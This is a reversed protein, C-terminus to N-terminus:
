PRAGRIGRAAVRGLLTHRRNSGRADTAQHRTELGDRQVGDHYQAPTPTDSITALIGPASERM